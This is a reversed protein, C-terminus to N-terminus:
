YENYVMGGAKDIPKKRNKRFFCSFCRNKEKIFFSIGCIKKSIGVYKIKSLETEKQQSFFLALWGSVATGKDFVAKCAFLLVAFVVAITGAADSRVIVAEGVQSGNETRWERKYFCQM